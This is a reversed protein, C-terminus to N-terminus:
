GGVSTILDLMKMPDAPLPGAFRTRGSEDVLFVQPYNRGAAAELFRAVDKPPTGDAGVVDRDVVRLVHKKGEVRQRLAPASFLAGRNVALEATEEVVVIFLRTPTVPGPVPGPAHTPPTPVAGGRDCGGCAFFTLVAAFAASPVAATLVTKLRDSM